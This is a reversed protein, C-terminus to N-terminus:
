ASPRATNGLEQSVASAVAGVKAGVDEGVTEKKVVEAVKSLTERGAKTARASATGLYQRETETMPLAAGLAAGIAAGIAAVMVPQEEALHTVYTRAEGTIRQAQGAVRKVTDEGKHVLEAGTERVTTQVEDATERVSAITSSASDRMDHVTERTKSGATSALDGVKHVASSAAGRVTDTVGRAPRSLAKQARQGAQREAGEDSAGGGTRTLMMFLGAGILLAPIPNARALDALSRAISLGSDKALGM